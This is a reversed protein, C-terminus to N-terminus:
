AIRDAIMLALVSPLYILSATFLRRAGDRSPRRAAAVSAWFYGGSLIAAGIFYVPGGMGVVAPALSIPVLAAAHLAAQRFTMRGDADGVSLMQLGARAYDDRYIWSLALFHPLQWLFLIAFLISARTDLTGGAATWGGVIPLAGPVAGILTSLPTRRKLPTYVFVYSALTLAALVATVANVLVALYAVGSAGILWAFVTAERVELRASPLPRRATRAMLADVDRELVQNLANTGGAVLATGILAHFLGLVWAAPSVVGLVPAMAYGAAMTVLVLMVIRPKALALL